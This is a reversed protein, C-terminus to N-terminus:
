MKWDENHGKGYPPRHGGYLPVPSVGTGGIKLFKELCNRMPRQSMPLDPFNIKLATEIKLKSRNEPDITAM